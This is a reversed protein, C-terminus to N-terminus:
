DIDTNKCFFRRIAVKITCGRTQSPRLTDAVFSLRAIGLQLLEAGNTLNINLKLKFEVVDGYKPTARYVVIM